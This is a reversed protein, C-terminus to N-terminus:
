KTSFDVVGSIDFNDYKEFYYVCEKDVFALTYPLLDWGKLLVDFYYM